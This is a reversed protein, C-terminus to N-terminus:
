ICSSCFCSHEKHCHLAILPCAQQLLHCSLLFMAKPLCMDTYFAVKAETMAFVDADRANQQRLRRNLKNLDCVKRRLKECEISLQNCSICVAAETQTGADTLRGGADCDAEFHAFTDGSEEAEDQGLVPVPLSGDGAASAATSTTATGAAAPLPRVRQSRVEAVHAYRVHSKLFRFSRCSSTDDYSFLHPVYDIDDPDASPARLCQRFARLLRTNDTPM